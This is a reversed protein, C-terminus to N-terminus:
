VTIKCLRVRYTRLRSIVISKKKLKLTVRRQTNEPGLSERRSM